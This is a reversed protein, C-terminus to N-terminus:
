RFRCGPGNEKGGTCDLCIGVACGWQWLPFLRAPWRDRALMLFRQGDGEQWRDTYNALDTQAPCCSASGITVLFGRSSFINTLLDHFNTLSPLVIDPIMEIFRSEVANNM